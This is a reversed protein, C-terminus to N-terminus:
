AKPGGQPLTVLVTTGRGPAADVMFEGGLAMVMEHAILLGLHAGLKAAMHVPDFGKGDDVISLRFTRRPASLHVRVQRAHTHKVVNNLSEQVVRFFVTQFEPPISMGGTADTFRIRLSTENTLLSFYQRLAAPLGLIDLDPPRLEVALTKLHRVSQVFLRRTKNLSTIAEKYKGKRLDEDAANLYAAVGVTFSGVDHHLVASIRRKEEERVSLLKRSFDHIRAEARKRESLDQIVMSTRPGEATEFVVSGVQAPFCTGDARVLTMEGIAYGEETRERFLVRMRSDRRDVLGSRGLRRIDAETRGFLQCAAPNATFIRGDPATLLMGVLSNEFLARLRAESERLDRHTLLGTLGDTLRRGIEEFLKEEEPTWVRPRSCQHEVFMWPKGVKPYLVMAIQSQPGFRRAVEYPQPYASGPGFQVPGSSAQLIRFMRSVDPDMPVELRLALAGPYEPQTREMPVQWSAAEPDCPYVLSARDCNFIALLADLVDIMMQELDNTAQMVRNIRDMSEFFRLNALREEEARKRETIDRLIGITHIEDDLKYTSVAVAMDFVTGDRKIGRTEYFAPAPEGQSHQRAFEQVRPREEPAIDNLLSTGTAESAKAYGFLEAYAPNVMLQIGDKALGMAYSSGEFLARLKAESETLKAEARKRASIDTVMVGLAAPTGNWDPVPFYSIIWDGDMGAARTTEGGLEHDLIPKGNMLVQRCLPEIIPAFAPLIERVTKGFHAEVPQGNMDALRENIRLYRLETDLVAMGSPSAHFFGRLQEESARMALEVRAGEAIKTQLAALASEIAGLHGTIEVGPVGTSSGVHGRLAQLSHRASDIHTNFPEDKM